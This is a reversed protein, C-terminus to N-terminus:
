SSPLCREPRAELILVQLQPYSHRRRLLRSCRGGCAPARGLPEGRASQQFGQERRLGSDGALRSEGGPLDDPDLSGQGQRGDGAARGARADHARARQCRGRPRSGVKGDRLLRGDARVRRQVRGPGPGAGRRSRRDKRHLWARRPRGRPRPGRGRLGPPARRRPREFPGEEQRRAAPEHRPERAGECLGGRSGRLRRRRAGM